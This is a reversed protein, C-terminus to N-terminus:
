IWIGRSWEHATRERAVSVGHACPAAGACGLRALEAWSVAGGVYARHSYAVVSLRTGDAPTVEHKCAAADFEVWVELTSLALVEGSNSSGSLCEVMDINMMFM